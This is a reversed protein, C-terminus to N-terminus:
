KTGPQGRGALVRNWIEAMGARHQEITFLHATFALAAPDYDPVRALAGVFDDDSVLTGNVGDTVIDRLGGVARAVVWRGSAIAEAAVLGFPEARSPVLVVSHSAMLEPIESPNIERIGPGVLTDALKRAVDVGKHEFEGGLYLVRRQAPLPQPHFRSLDIGPPVVTAAVGLQLVLDATGQSNTVVANAGRLVARAALRMLRNRQAMERVDGGHAYVVLPLRRLRAALLAILGSPLVFHGEVGDFPGRVTVSRWLLALYRRWGPVDYRTPAVVTARLSPDRLRDRVFTGASPRDPTPYRASVVLLRM